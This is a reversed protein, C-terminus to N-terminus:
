FRATRKDTGIPVVPVNERAGGRQFSHAPADEKWPLRSAWALSVRAATVDNPAEQPPGVCKNAVM